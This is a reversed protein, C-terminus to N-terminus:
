DLLATAMKVDDFVQVWESFKLNQTIESVWEIEYSFTANSQWAKIIAM